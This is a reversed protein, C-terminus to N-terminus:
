RRVWRRHKRWRYVLALAVIAIAPAVSILAYAVPLYAAPPLGGVSPGTVALSNNLALATASPLQLRLTISAGPFTLDQVYLLVAGPLIPASTRALLRFQAQQPSAGPTVTFAGPLTGGSSTTIQYNWGDQYLVAGNAVTISVTSPTNGAGGVYFPLYVSTSSVTVSAPEEGGVVAYVPTLTLPVTYQALSANTLPRSYLSLIVPAHTSLANTPVSVDAEVAQTGGPVLTFNGPSFRIAWDSPTGNMTLNLVQNGTNRVVLPVSLANGTLATLSTPGLSTLSASPFYDPSLSTSEAGNSSAVTLSLTRTLNVAPGYPAVVATLSVSFSGSPLVLTVPTGWPYKGLALGGATGAGTLTVNVGSPTPLGSPSSVSIVQTWGPGLSLTSAVPVPSYPVTLNGFGALPVGSADLVGYLRYTGPILSLAIGTSAVAYRRPASANQGLPSVWLTGYGAPTASGVRFGLDVTTTALSASVPVTCNSNQGGAVVTCTVNGVTQFTFNRAPGSPAWAATANVRFRYTGAPLVLDLGGSGTTRLDVSGGSLGQVTVSLSRNVAVGGLTQLRATLTGARSLNLQRPSLTGNSLLTVNGFFAYSGSLGQTTAWITYNGPPALFSTRFQVGSFTLNGPQGYVKVSARNLTGNGLSTGTLNGVYTRQPYLYATVTIGPSGLPVTLPVAALPRYVTRNSGPGTAYGNIVYSGPALSFNAPNGRADVTAGSLLYTVNFQPLSSGAPLGPGYIAVPVPAPTLTVRSIGSLTSPTLDTRAYSLFGPASVSVSYTVNGLPLRVTLNGAGGTLLQLTSGPQATLNVRAGPLPSFAGTANLYGVQPVFSFGSGLDLNLTLPSTGLTVGGLAVKSLPSTGPYSALFTYSGVPLYLQYRGSANSYAPLVAGQASQILLTVGGEPAPTGAIYTSGSLLGAPLLSLTGAYGSGPGATLLLNGMGAVYTGNVAALAYVSWSGEPVQATITGGGNSFFLYSQNATSTSNSVTGLPTFRVPVNPLPFGQYDVSLTVTVPVEVTLTETLNTGLKTVSLRLPTSSLGGPVSARLSYNGPALPTFSFNGTGNTVFSRVSGNTVSVLSVTASGVPLGTRSVVQGIVRGPALGVSETIPGGRSVDVTTYNVLTSGVMVQLAYSGPAVDAFQFFGSADTTGRYTLGGTTSALRVPALPLITDNSAFANTRAENFYVQGSVTSSPLSFSVPVPAPDTQYAQAQTITLNQEAVVYAGEQTLPDLAGYSVVVSVPGPPAILSYGGLANTTVTMHPTGYQDLVTVRLGPAPKGDALRVSGVVTAGPYYEMITEGNSYYSTPSLDVTGIGAAQYALAQQYNVAVFCNPHAQYDKYPCWYATRYGVMFHQMMWGPEPQYNSLSTSLGPIGAGAGIDTGNYGAFFRYIMSNFFSPAYSINYSAVGVGAPQQGLIYTNGDTGVVTVQFFGTPIGGSSIVRGTLDAPAYFIGTNSGSSPFLLSNSMAYRISWGTYAQVDQYVKVVQNESLSSALFISVVNYMASLPSITAPNFPGYLNPNGLVIRVDATQNALYAHLLTLNVDDSALQANLAAPLYPKGTTQAEAYLLDAAMVGIAASENQALLFNGSPDIGDQFNDAVTPHQGQDLAQFGYDWWSIFAPRSSIPLINTDQQALWNYGSEDYQTPTDVQIGAAGFYASTANAPSARLGPPLSNYVQQNYQAKMNYPIAADTAYWVNPLLLAILILGVAVHRLKVSRRLALWRNGRGGLSAFNRRMQPLGLRDIGVLVVEAPLLAFVPSGLLFFKAASVPLYIGLLSFIVMFVHERRFRHAYLYYLFLAFGAFALFFTLVGYSVILADFSPAQAEAVTSYILSKIFYGQGTLVASFYAPNYLYLGGAAALVSLFLAPVSVVWPANRLFLFPLLVLLGGFWLFVPVTFWYGFDGQLYYYPMAMLFGVTGVILTVVYLGFSDLGRIREVVLVVALFIVVVAVVYTYGQWALMTAGLTVGTLVAWRVSMEETRAFAKLGAWVARPSRYSEVWRRTGALKATHIFLALSLVVFFAYFSLYNAYTAVTSEMNGVILPFLLAAVVGMRRSSVEKGLLYVPFVGLAAWIAPQMELVWMGAQVANGGFFPALLIGFIANMWDFLPERPNTYGLPYNLAADHILNTHYTIIYQMVRAHYFSDSGGAFCYYVDCTSILQYSYLVRLILSISAALALLFVVLGHRRWWGGSGDITDVM